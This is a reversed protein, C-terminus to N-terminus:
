PAASSTAHEPEHSVPLELEDHDRLDRSPVVLPPRSSPAPLSARVAALQRGTLRNLGATLDRPLRSESHYRVFASLQPRGARTTLRMTLVTAGVEPADSLWLTSLTESDIDSPSVWFSTVLGNFHKLHRWGP